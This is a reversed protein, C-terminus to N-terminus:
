EGESPPLPYHKILLDRLQKAEYDCLMVVVEKDYDNNQVGIEIGQRYPEGMNTYHAVFSDDESDCPLRLKAETDRIVKPM